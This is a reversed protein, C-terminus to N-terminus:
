DKKPSGYVFTNYGFYSWCTALGSAILMAFIPRFDTFVFLVSAYIVYNLLASSLGVSGYRVGESAVSRGGKQFTFNRNIIWTCGMAAAIAFIRASFPDLSTFRLLLLLVGAGAALGVSGEILLSIIRKM